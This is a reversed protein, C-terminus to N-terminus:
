RVNQKYEAVLSQPLSAEDFVALVRQMDEPHSALHGALVSKAIAFVQPNQECDLSGNMLAEFYIASEKSMHSVIEPAVRMMKTLLKNDIKHQQAAKEIALMVDVDKAVAKRKRIDEIVICALLFAEIGVLLMHRKWRDNVKSDHYAAQKIDYSGQYDFFEGYLHWGKTGHFFPDYAEHFADQRTIDWYKAYYNNAPDSEEYSNDFIYRDIIGAVQNVCFLMVFLTVIRGKDMTSPAFKSIIAERKQAEQKKQEVILRAAEAKETALRKARLAEREQEAQQKALAARQEANMAGPFTKKNTM